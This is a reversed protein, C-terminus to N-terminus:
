FLDVQPVSSRFGHQALAFLCSLILVVKANSGAGAETLAECEETASQDDGCSQEGSRDILVHATEDVCLM